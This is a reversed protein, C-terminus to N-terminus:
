LSRFLRDPRWAVITDFTGKRADELMQEFAAREKRNDTGSQVDVYPPSVIDYGKRRCYAECDRQQVELSVKDESAQERSSVRIYTGARKTNEM